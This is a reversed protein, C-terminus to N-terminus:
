DLDAVAPENRVPSDAPPHSIQPRGEALFDPM